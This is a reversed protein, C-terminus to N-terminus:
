IELRSLSFGLEKAEKPHLEIHQHCIRCVALFYRVDTLLDNIKGKKHHIETALLGCCMWEAQCYPNEELFKARIKMYEREQKARKTSRPKIM